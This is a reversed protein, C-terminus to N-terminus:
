LTKIEELTRPMYKNALDKFDSDKSIKLFREVLVEYKDIYNHYTEDENKETKLYNMVVDLLRLMEQNIFYRDNVKVQLRLLEQNENNEKVLSSVLMMEFELQETYKSCTDKCGQLIELDEQYENINM